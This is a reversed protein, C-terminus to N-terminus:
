GPKYIVNSVELVDLPDNDGAVGGLHEHNV